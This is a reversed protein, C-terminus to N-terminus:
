MQGHTKGVIMPKNPITEFPYGTFTATNFQNNKVTLETSPPVDVASNGFCDYEGPGPM